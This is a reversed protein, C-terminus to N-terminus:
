TYIGDLYAVRVEEEEGDGERAGGKGGSGAAPRGDREAILDEVLAELGEAFGARGKEERTGRWVAALEALERARGRAGADDGGRVREAAEARRADEFAAARARAPGDGDPPASINILGGSAAPPPPSAPWATAAGFVRVVADLRARVALLVRLRAVAAAAAAAEEGGGAVEPGGEGGRGGDEGAAAAPVFAARDAALRSPPGPRPGSPSGPPEFLRDALAVADARLVDAHYALRPAARLLEDTLATLAATLRASQAALTALLSQADATLAALPAPGAADGPAPKAPPPKSPAPASPSLTLARLSANLYGAPDFTPALFPALSPDALHPSRSAM